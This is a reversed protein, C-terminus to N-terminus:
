EPKKLPSGPRDVLFQELRVQYNVGGPYARGNDEYAMVEFVLCVRPDMALTHPLAFDVSWRTREKRSIIAVKPNLPETSVWNSGRTCVCLYVSCGKGFATKSSISVHFRVASQQCYNSVSFRFAGEELRDPEIAVDSFYAQASSAGFLFLLIGVCICGIPRVSGLRLPQPGPGIAGFASSSIASM